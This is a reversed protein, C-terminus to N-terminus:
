EFRDGGSEGSRETRKLTLVLPLHDSLGSGTRPNYSYPIGRNNTFPSQDAACASDFEWGSADFFAESLLFHDITEWANQYFYSGGKLERDWPSYLILAGPPFYVAAPPKTKGIVLFDAQLEAAAADGAEESLGYLGTFEAARPDDPMLATIITGNRRYFEDYNENLDGMVAVPVGPHERRIERMRRLLVRASARRLAETADDGGLKSKWHCIFLALPDDGQQVWVEMVPRPVTEGNFSLSHARTKTLPFRSLVGIGLPSGSTNAFFNWQYGYKDLVGGALDELVGANEVEELALIDPAEPEITGLAQAIANLRGSYMEQSWGASELYEEYEGGTETGDFLAQVNWTMVSIRAPEGGGTGSEAGTECGAMGGCVALVGWAAVLRMGANGQKGFQKM